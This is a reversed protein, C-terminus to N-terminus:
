LPRAERFESHASAGPVQQKYWEAFADSIKKAGNINVHGWDQFDEDTLGVDKQEWFLTKFGHRAALINMHRKFEEYIPGRERRLLPLYDSSTPNGFLVLEGGDEKVMQVLRLFEAEFRSSYQYDTYYNIVWNLIQGETFFQEDHYADLRDYAARGYPDLGITEPLRRTRAVVRLLETVHPIAVDTSYIMDLLLRWRWTGSYALRQSLTALKRFRANPKIGVSFQFPDAQVVVLRARSLAARNREYLWLADQIHVGGMSTNIVEGRGAGIGEEIRTPLLAARGRSTGMIVIRAQPNPRIVLEENRYLIELEGNPTVRYIPTTRAVLIEM